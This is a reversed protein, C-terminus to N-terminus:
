CLHHLLSFPLPFVTTIAVYRCCHYGYLIWKQQYHFASCCQFWLHHWRFEIWQHHIFCWVFIANRSSRFHADLKLPFRESTQSASAPPNSSADSTLTGFVIWWWWRWGCRMVARTHSLHCTCWTRTLKGFWRKCDCPFHFHFISPYHKWKLQTQWWWRLTSCRNLM